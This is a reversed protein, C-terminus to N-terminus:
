EGVGVVGGLDLDLDLRLRVLLDYGYVLGFVLESGDEWEEYYFRRLHENQRPYGVVAGEEWSAYRV